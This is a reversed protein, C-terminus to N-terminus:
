AGFAEGIRVNSADPYLKQAWIMTKIRAQAKSKARTQHTVTQTDTTWPGNPGSRVLWIIKVTVTYM